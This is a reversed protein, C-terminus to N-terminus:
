RGLGMARVERDLCNRALERQWPPLPELHALLAEIGEARRKAALAALDGALREYLASRAVETRSPGMLAALEGPAWGSWSRVRAARLKHRWAWRRERALWLMRHHQHCKWIGADCLAERPHTAWFWWARARWGLDTLTM